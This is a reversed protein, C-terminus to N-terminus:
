AMRDLGSGAAPGLVSLLPLAPQGAGRGPQRGGGDHGGGGVAVLLILHPTCVVHSATSSCTQLKAHPYARQPQAPLAHIRPRALLATTRPAPQAANSSRWAAQPDGQRSASVGSDVQRFLRRRAAGQLRPAGVSLSHAGLHTPLASCKRHWPLLLTGRLSVAMAHQRRGTNHHQVPLPDEGAGQWTRSRVARMNSPRSSPVDFGIRKCGGAWGDVGGWGAGLSCSRRAPSLTDPAASCSPSASLELRPQNPKPRTLAWTAYNRPPPAQAVPIAHLKAASAPLGFATLVM